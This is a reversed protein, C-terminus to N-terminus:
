AFLDEVIVINKDDFNILDRNTTIEDNVFLMPTYMKEQYIMAIQLSTKSKGGGAKAFMVLIKYKELIKCCMKVDETIVYTDDRSHELLRAETQAVENVKEDITDMRCHLKEDQVILQQQLDDLKQKDAIWTQKDYTVVLLQIETSM